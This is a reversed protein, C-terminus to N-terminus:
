LGELSGFVDAFGGPALEEEIPPAEGVDTGVL